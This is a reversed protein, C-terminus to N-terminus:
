FNISDDNNLAVFENFVVEVRRNLSRDYSTREPSVLPESNSLGEYSLRSKDIGSAILYRYVKKARKKSIRMNDGCCVHGRINVELMPNSELIELLQELYMQSESLMKATGGVFNLHLNMHDVEKPTSLAENQNIQIETRSPQTGEANSQLQPHVTKVDIEAQTGERPGFKVFYIDVREWNFPKFDLAIRDNGYNNITLNEDEANLYKLTCNIRNQALGKDDKNFQTNETFANLEILQVNYSVMLEVLSELEKESDPQLECSNSKFYLSRMEVKAEALIPFLSLVLIFVLTKM